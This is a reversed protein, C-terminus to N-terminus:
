GVAHDLDHLLGLDSRTCFVHRSVRNYSTQKVKLCRACKTKNDKEVLQETLSECTVGRGRPEATPESARQLVGAATATRSGQLHDANKVWWPRIGARQISTLVAQTQESRDM